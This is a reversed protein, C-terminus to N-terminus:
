LTGNGLGVLIDGENVANCVLLDKTSGKKSTLAKGDHAWLKYHKPGVSM